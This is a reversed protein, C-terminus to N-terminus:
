NYRPPTRPQYPIVRAKFPFCDPTMAGEKIRRQLTKVSWYVSTDKTRGDFWAWSKNFHFLDSNLRHTHVKLSGMWLDSWQVIDGLPVNDTYLEEDTFLQEWDERMYLGTHNTDIYLKSVRNFQYLVAEYRKALRRRYVLSSRFRENDKHQDDCWHVFVDWVQEATSKLM